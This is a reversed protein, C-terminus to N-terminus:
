KQPRVQMRIHLLIQLVCSNPYMKVVILELRALYGLIDFMNQIVLSNLFPNM